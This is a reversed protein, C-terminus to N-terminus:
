KEWWPTSPPLPIRDILYSEDDFDLFEEFKCDGYTSM